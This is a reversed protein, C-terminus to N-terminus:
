NRKSRRHIKKVLRKSRTRKRRSTKKRQKVGKFRLSVDLINNAETIFEDENGESVPFSLMYGVFERKCQEKQEETYDDTIEHEQEFITLFEQLKVTVLQRIVM